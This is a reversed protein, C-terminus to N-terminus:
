PCLNHLRAKENNLRLFNLVVKNFELKNEFQPAHGVGCIIVLESKDIHEQVMALEIIPTLMDFESAICLTPVKIGNIKDLINYTHSSEALKIFADFWPKKFVRGFAKVRNDIWKCNEECFKPSYIYPMIQKFFKEGDYQMAMNIWSDEVDRLHKTVRATTNCLVLSQLMNQYKLAFLMAVKGGYSIGLMHVKEISLKDLLAKLDEVHIDINFSEEVYQSQGQNRFDVRLLRYEKTYLPVFGYWDATNMMIGNLLVLTESGGGDLQYFIEVGNLIEKPLILVM